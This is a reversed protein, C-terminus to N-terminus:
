LQAPWFRARSSPWARNVASVSRTALNSSTPSGTRRRYLMVRLKERKGTRATAPQATERDELQITQDTLPKSFSLSTRLIENKNLKARQTRAPSTICVSSGVSGTAASKPPLKGARSAIQATAYIADRAPLSGGSIRPSGWMMAIAGSQHIPLIVPGVPFSQSKRQDIGDYSAERRPLRHM